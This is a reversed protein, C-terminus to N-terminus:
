KDAGYRPVVADALRLGLIVKVGSKMVQYGREKLKTTFNKQSLVYEGAGEAWSRYNAYLDSSKARANQDVVANAEIWEAIVDEGELYNEVAEMVQEPKGLGADRWALFGDMCWQLIQPYETRLKADLDRDMDEEAVPNAFELIHLRRRMAEDVNRLGPIHNAAMLIKGLQFEFSNERLMRARVIDRGTLQKIRAESWRKNSDTESAVIMRAGALSALEESHREMRSETFVDMSATVAYTGMMERLASIFKSKGRRAPGFCFLLAEESNDGSLFYGCWRQMYAILSDDGKCIHQIFKLWQVPEGREPAVATQRTIYHEREAAIVKGLKLDVVGGPVGLLYPDANFQSEEASIRRDSSTNDRMNWWFRKSGIKRRGEPTLSAADPWSLATRCFEISRRDVEKKADPKWYSGDWVLWLNRAAVYRLDDCQSAAFEMAVHDESMEAPLPEDDPDPKRAANGDTGVIGGMISRLRPKRKGGPRSKAAEPENEYASLPIQHDPPQSTELADQAISVNRDSEDPEGGEPPPPPV